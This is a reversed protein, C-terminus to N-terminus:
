QSAARGAGALSREIGPGMERVFAALTADAERGDGATETYVVLVASGDGHGRLKAWALLLKAVYDDSTAYGDISYWQLVALRVEPGVLEARRVSRSVGDWEIRAGGRSAQRWQANDSTVLVNASSVLERGESQKHFYALYVGVRRGAKEFVQEHETHHGVFQPKWDALRGPAATWANSGVIAALVPDRAADADALRQPLPQWVATAAFAAAAALAAARPGGGPYPRSCNPAVGGAPGSAPERWLSGVWFLAMIVIGFFVWGYVFHDVGVALKNSSLHGIMVILYARIWNAVIPVVLSAAVFAARKSLTTYSLYAYLTGAVLSAIVYRLGGCAEVVSWSGSSIVFYNGERYVPVGTVHLAAVVFDATWDMLTPLLFEGFPVAFFLFALPFAITAALERGLITLVTAQIMLVLAFQRGVNVVALESLLWVVGAVALVALGPWYPRLVAQAVEARRRWILWASIPAVVFGHAFTESGAWLAVMSVVTPWYVSLLAGVVATCLLLAAWRARRSQAEGPSAVRGASLVALPPPGASEDIARTVRHEYLM